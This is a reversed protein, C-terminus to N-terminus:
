QASAPKVGPPLKLQKADVVTPAPLDKPNNDRDDEETSVTAIFGTLGALILALGLDGLATAKSRCSSPVGPVMERECDATTNTVLELGIGAAISAGEGLKAYTRRRANHPFCGLM